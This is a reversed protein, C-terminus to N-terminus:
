CPCGTSGPARDSHVSRRRCGSAWLSHSHSLRCPRKVSLPILWITARRPSRIPVGPGGAGAEDCSPARWSSSLCSCSRDSSCTVAARVSKRGDAGTTTHIVVRALLRVIEQRQEISLGADLRAGVVALLDQPVESLEEGSPPELAAVRAELESKEAAIRDLEADLEGDGLCGRINLQLVQRRQAGLGEIARALTISEAEILADAAAREMQGDLDDLVDGPDRLWREIDGGWTVQHLLSAWGRVACQRIARRASGSHM